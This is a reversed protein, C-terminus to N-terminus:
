QNIKIKTSKIVEEAEKVKKGFSGNLIKYNIGLTELNKILINMFIDKDFNLKKATEINKLSTNVFVIDYKKMDECFFKYMEVDFQNHTAVSLLHDVFGTSDYFLYERGSHIKKSSNAKKYKETALKYFNIKKLNQRSVIFELLNDSTYVTSFKEALKKVIKGQEKSPIGVFAVNILIDRYVLTDMYMRCFYKDNRILTARMKCKYDKDILDVRINKAGLFKSMHEGYFDSSFFHTIKRGNLATKVFKEQIRKVEPTDEHRNPADWGEIVNVQPYFKRVWNARINLPIRTLNPCDYMIIFLDDVMNLAKEIIYRHCNHFPAFKALILGTKKSM